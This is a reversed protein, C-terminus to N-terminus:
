RYSSLVRLGKSQNLRLWLDNYRAEGIREKLQFAFQKRSGYDLRAREFTTITLDFPGSSSINDIDEYRWTRSAEKKKSKYVIQTTGAQLVGQDGTWGYVHKVPVEWLVTAPAEAIAVVFRQDLRRKLYESATEFSGASFMDFEHQRDAGFKWRNDEYTLVSLTRPELKLQQIDSYKWQFRHPHKPTVGNISIESFSVGTASITLIGYGRTKFMNPLRAHEHLAEYRFDQQSFAPGM